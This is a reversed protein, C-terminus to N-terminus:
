CQYLSSSIRGLMFWRVNVGKITSMIAAEITRFSM